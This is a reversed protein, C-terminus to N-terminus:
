PGEEITIRVARDDCLGAGGIKTDNIHSEYSDHPQLVAAIGGQAYWTNSQDITDKTLLLVSASASAGIAARLGAVGGGIVLVDAVQQAIRSARFPLLYRGPTADSM